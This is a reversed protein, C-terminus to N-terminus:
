CTSPNLIIDDICNIPINFNIQYDIVSYDFPYILYQKDPENFDYGSFLTANKSPFSTPRIRIATAYGTKNMSNPIQAMVLPVLASTDILTKNIKKLNFWMFLRVTYVMSIYKDQPQTVNSGSDVFWMISKYDSDPTLDIYDGTNLAKDYYVPFRKNITSGKNDIPKTITTSLGGVIESFNLTLLEARINDIINDIM